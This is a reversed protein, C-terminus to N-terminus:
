RIAIVIQTIGTVASIVGIWFGWIGMADNEVTVRVPKPEPAAPMLSVVGDAARGRAVEDITERNLGIRARFKDWFHGFRNCGFLFGYADNKCAKRRVTKVKCRTPWVFGLLVALLALMWGAFQSAAVLDDHRLKTVAVAMLCVIAVFLLLSLDRMAKRKSRRAMEGGNVCRSMAGAIGAVVM